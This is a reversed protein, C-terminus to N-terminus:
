EIVTVTYDTMEDVDDPEAGDPADFGNGRLAEAVIDLDNPIIGAKIKALTARARALKAPDTYETADELYGLLAAKVDGLDAVASM